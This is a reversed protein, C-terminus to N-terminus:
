KRDGTLKASAIQELRKGRQLLLRSLVPFDVVRPEVLRWPREPRLNQIVEDFWM